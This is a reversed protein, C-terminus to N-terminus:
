IGRQAVRDPDGVATADDVATEMRTNHPDRIITFSDNRVPAQAHDSAPGVWLPVPEIRRHCARIKTRIKRRFDDLATEVLYVRARVNICQARYQIM